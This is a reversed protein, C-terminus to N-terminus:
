RGLGIAFPTRGSDDYEGLNELKQILRRTEQGWTFMGAMDRRVSARQYESRARTLEAETGVILAELVTM